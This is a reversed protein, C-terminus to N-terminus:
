AAKRQVAPPALETSAARPSPLARAARRLRIRARVLRRAVVMAVGGAAALVGGAVVVPVLWAEPLAIILLFAVLPWWLLGRLVGHLSWDDRRRKAM